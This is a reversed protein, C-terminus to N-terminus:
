DKRHRVPSPSPNLKKQLQAARDDSHQIEDRAAQQVDRESSRGPAATGSGSHQAAIMCRDKKRSQVSTTVASHREQASLFNSGDAEAPM